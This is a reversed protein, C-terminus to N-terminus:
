REVLAHEERQRDSPQFVDGPSGIGEHPARPMIPDLLM